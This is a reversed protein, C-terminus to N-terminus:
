NKRKLLYEALCTLIESDDYKNLVDIADRTLEAAYRLADEASFFSLFTTKDRQRDRGIGKSDAKGTEDLVDDVIQFALGINEAFFTADRMRNDDMTVGAALMGLQAAATILAGTKLAHMKKLTDFSISRTESSLDLIQGGVMGCTGAARSLALVAQANVEGSLNKNGALIGFADTLLADGALMATGEGFVTHNTPRGRRLEDNDMNPLDDHILSYTHVMEVACGYPLVAEDEGGFMRCFELSLIPRIRKGGELLSYRESATLRGLDEDELLMVPLDHLATQYLAADAKLRNQLREFDKDTM